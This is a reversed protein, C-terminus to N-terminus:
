VSVPILQLPAMDPHMTMEVTIRGHPEQEGEETHIHHYMEHLFHRIQCIQGDEKRENAPEQCIILNLHRHTQTIDKHTNVEEIQAFAPM